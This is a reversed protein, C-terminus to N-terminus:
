EVNLKKKLEKIVNKQNELEEKVDRLEKNIDSNEKKLNEIEVKQEENRKLIKQNENKIEKILEIADKLINKITIESENDKEEEDKNDM